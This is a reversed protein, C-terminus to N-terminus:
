SIHGLCLEMLKAKDVEAKDVDAVLAGERVVLIRNSLNLIEEIESSILVVGAGREALELILRHIAAKANVDVGRTPEDLVFLRPSKSIWRGMIVKQQNGGSLKDVRVEESPTKIELENIMNQASAKEKQEQMLMKKYAGLNPMTINKWIPMTMFLGSAHRDETVYGVERLLKRGRMKKLEGGTLYSITGTDLKDLGLMARIIETRGSGLLGWLGIIEGSYAEFSVDNVKPFRSLHEVKLLLESSKKGGTNVVQQVSSGVMMTIIQEVTTESTATSGVIKGDVMIVAKDCVEMVEDLFHTIYFIVKNQKKLMDIIEFLKKKEEITLSSTPEDFLLIEADQSLARAIEIIQRDGATVDKVLKKPDLGSGLLSLYEAAKRRLTKFDILGNKKFKDINNIFVNEAVSMTTFVVAEQHILAIKNEEADKPTKISKQEGGIMFTGEDAAIEGALVNMLTSKGAGNIGLLGVAQGRHADLTIGSLAKVGPFSKSVDKIQLYPKTM